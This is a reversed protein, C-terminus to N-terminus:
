PNMMSFELLITQLSNPNMQPRFHDIVEAVPLGLSSFGVLYNWLQDEARCAYPVGRPRQFRHLWGLWPLCLAMRGRQRVKEHIIGEEGGFGRCGVPFGPWTDKRCAFLGMGQAPIEFAGGEVAHRYGADMMPKEHCNWPICTPFPKGCEGCAEIVPHPHSMSEARVMGRNEIIHLGIQFPAGCPCRWAVAWVGWMNGSWKLAFHTSHGQLDDYILPGHLLNGGDNGSRFMQVLAAVAGPQLLVHSDMCLVGDTEAEDFIRQKVAAPGNLEGAKLHRTPRPGQAAACLKAVANGEASDPNNDAVIIQVDAMAEAHHMRLSQLTFFVGDFDDRCPIGITLVPKSM